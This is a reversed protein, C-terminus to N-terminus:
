FRWGISWPGLFNFLNEPEYPEAVTQFAVKDIKGFSYRPHIITFDIIFNAKKFPKWLWGFWAGPTVTAINKVSENSIKSEVTRSSFSVEGGIYFGRNQKKKSLFYQYELGLRYNMKEEYTDFQVNDFESVRGGFGGVLGILHQKKGYDVRLVASQNVIPELFDAKLQWYHEKADQAFASMSFFLSLALVWVFSKKAKM